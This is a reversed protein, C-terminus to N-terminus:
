DSFQKTAPLGLRGRLDNFADEIRSAQSVFLGLKFYSTSAIISKDRADLLQVDFGRLYRQIDWGGVYSLKVLLDTDLPDAPLPKGIVKLGMDSLEWTVASALNFEDEKLPELYAAKYQSLAKNPMVQSHIRACGTVLFTCVVLLIVTKM